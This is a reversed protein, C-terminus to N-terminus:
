FIIRQPNVLPNNFLRGIERDSMMFRIEVRFIGQKFHLWSFYAGFYGLTNGCEDFIVWFTWLAFNVSQAFSCVNWEYINVKKLKKYSIENILPTLERRCRLMSMWTRTSRPHSIITRVQFLISKLILEGFVFAFLVFSFIFSFAPVPIDLWVDLADVDAFWISRILVESHNEMEFKIGIPMWSSM